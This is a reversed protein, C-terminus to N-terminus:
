DNKEIRKRYIFYATVTQSGLGFIFLSSRIHFSGEKCNKM